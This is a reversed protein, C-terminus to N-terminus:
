IEIESEDRIDGIYSIECVWYNIINKQTKSQIARVIKETGKM